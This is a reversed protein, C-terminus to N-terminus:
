TDLAEDQLKVKKIKYAFRSASMRKEPDRKLLEKCLEIVEGFRKDVKDWKPNPKIAESTDPNKVLYELLLVEYVTAGLSWMDAKNTFPVGTKKLEIVEPAKYGPTGNAVASSTGFDSLGFDTLKVLNGLILFNEPKIDQHIIPISHLQYMAQGLQKIVQLKWDQNDDCAEIKKVILDHLSGNCLEMAITIESRIVNNTDWKLGIMKDSMLNPSNMKVQILMEKLSTWHLKMKKMAIMKGEYEAKFVQGFTGEGIKEENKVKQYDLNELKSSKKIEHKLTKVEDEYKEVSHELEVIKESKENLEKDQEDVKDKLKKIIDRNEKKAVEIAEDEYMEVLHELEVIKESKEKLEKDQEDVKDKLKKIIDRNEKKAAEIAEENPFKKKEWLSNSTEERKRKNKIEFVFQDEGQVMIDQEMEQNMNDRYVEVTNEKDQEMSTVDKCNEEHDRMKKGTKIQPVQCKKCRIAIKSIRNHVNKIEEDCVEEHFKKIHTRLVDWRKGFKTACYYCQYGGESTESPFVILQKEYQYDGFVWGLDNERPQM